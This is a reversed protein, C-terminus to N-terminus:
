DSAMDPNMLSMGGRPGGGLAEREKAIAAASRATGSASNSVSSAGHSSVSAARQAGAMLPTASATASYLNLNPYNPYATVGNQAYASGSESSSVPSVFQNHYASGPDSQSM